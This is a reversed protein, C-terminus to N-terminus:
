HPTAAPPTLIYLMVWSSNSSVSSHKVTRIRNLAVGCTESTMWLDLLQVPRSWCIWFVAVSEGVSIYLHYVSMFHFAQYRLGLRPPPPPPAGGVRGRPKECLLLFFPWAYLWWIKMLKERTDKASRTLNEPGPRALDGSLDISTICTLNQDESPGVTILWQKSVKCTPM